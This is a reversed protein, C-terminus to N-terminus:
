PTIEYKALLDGILDAILSDGLATAYMRFEHQLAYGLRPLIQNTGALTDFNVIGDADVARQGQNVGNMWLDLAAGDRRLAIVVATGSAIAYPFTEANLSDSYNVAAMTCQGPFITGGVDGVLEVGGPNAGVQFFQAVVFATFTSALAMPSTLGLASFHGMKACKFGAM